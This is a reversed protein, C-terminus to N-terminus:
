KLLQMVQYLNKVLNELLKHLLYVYLPLSLLLVGFGLLIKAPMGVMFINMQPITRSMIGMIVDTILLAGVIPISLKAAIVFVGGFLALLFSMFNQTLVVKGVPIVSYSDFLAQIFLHHGDLVLYVLMALIFKFNGLLPAQTGSMPDLVNMIGFGMQIDIIEGALQIGAFFMNAALALVIGIVAEGLMLLIFAAPSEPTSFQKALGLEWAFLSMCLVMATKWLPPLNKTSFIPAFGLGSFRALLVLFKDSQQFITMLEDM